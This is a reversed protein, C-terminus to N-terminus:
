SERESLLRPGSQTGKPVVYVLAKRGRGTGAELYARKVSVLYTMRDRVAREGLGLDQAIEQATARRGRAVIADLVDDDTVQVSIEDAVVRLQLTTGDLEVAFPKRPEAEKQEVRVEIRPAADDPREVWLAWEVAAYLASSGRLKMGSRLGAGAGAAGKNTHHVLAIACGHDDRWARLQRVIAGMEQASNEDGTTMAALPDLIFLDPRVRDLTVEVRQMSVQDEFLVPENSVIYLEEPASDYRTVAARVRRQFAARASEFQMLLVRRPEPVIFRGCFLGGAAVAVALDVALHSKLVKPGGGIVGVSHEQLIEHCIWRPPAIEEALFAGARQVGLGGARPADVDEPDVIDPEIPHEARLPVVVGLPDLTLAVM